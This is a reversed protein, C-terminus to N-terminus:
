AGPHCVRCARYGAARAAAQSSWRVLHDAHIRRAHRCSEVHYVDSESSGVVTTHIPDLHAHEVHTPTAGSLVPAFALLAGLALANLHRM